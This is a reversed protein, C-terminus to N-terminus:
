SEVQEIRVTYKKGSKILADFNSHDGFSVVRIFFDGDGAHPYLNTSKVFGGDTTEVEKVPSSLFTGVNNQVQCLNIMNM